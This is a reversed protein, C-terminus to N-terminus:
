KEQQINHFCSMRKHKGFMQEAIQDAKIKTLAESM